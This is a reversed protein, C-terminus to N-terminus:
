DIIISDLADELTDYTDYYLGTLEYFGQYDRIIQAKEFDSLKIFLEPDINAYELSPLMWVDFEIDRTWYLRYVTNISRIEPFIQFVTNNYTFLYGNDICEELSIDEGQYTPDEEIRKIAKSIDM